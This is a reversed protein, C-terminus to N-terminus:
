VFQKVIYGFVLTGGCLFLSKLTGKILTEWASSEDESATDADSQYTILRITSAVGIAYAVSLLPLHFVPVVFWLWM